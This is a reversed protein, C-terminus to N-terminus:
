PGQPPQEPPRYPPNYPQSPPVYVGGSPQSPRGAPGGPRGVSQKRKWWLLVLVAVVVLVVVVVLLATGIAATQYSYATLSINGTMRDQPNYNEQRVWYGVADSYYSLTYQTPIQGHAPSRVAYVHFTGAPVRLDSESVLSGSFQTTGQSIQTSGVTVRFTSSGSWALMGPNLPFAAQTTPPDYTTTTEIGFPWTLTKAIGLDSMRVWEERTTASSVTWRTHFTDYTGGALVVNERAVVAIDSPQGDNSVYSWHDGISWGPASAAARASPAGIVVSATLLFAVLVAIGHFLRPSRM